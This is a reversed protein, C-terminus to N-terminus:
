GEEPWGVIYDKIAQYDSLADVDEKMQRQREHIKFGQLFMTTSMATSMAELDAAKVPVDINDADTWFFDAPLINARAAALAAGLREQSPKNCDWNHGNLSFTTSGSEQVDRWVNIENHKQDKATQIMESTVTLPTVPGYKGSKLYSYLQPGFDASDYATSIYLLYLPTGDSSTLDDFRVDAMIIGDDGYRANKADTIITM